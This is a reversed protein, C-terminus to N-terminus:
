NPAEWNSLRLCNYKLKTKKLNIVEGEDILSGEFLPNEDVFGVPIRSPLTRDKEVGSVLTVYFSEGLVRYNQGKRNNSLSL